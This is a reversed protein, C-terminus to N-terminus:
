VMGSVKPERNRPVFFVGAFLVLFEDQISPMNSLFFDLAMRAQEIGSAGNKLRKEKLDELQANRL